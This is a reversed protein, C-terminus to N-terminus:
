PSITCITNGDWMLIAFLYKFFGVRGWFNFPGDRIQSADMTSHLCSDPLLYPRGPATHGGQLPCLTLKVVTCALLSGSTLLITSVTWCITKEM